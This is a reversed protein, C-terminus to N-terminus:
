EKIEQISIDIVHIHNYIDCISILSPILAMRLAQMDFENDGHYATINFGRIDYLKKMIELKKM